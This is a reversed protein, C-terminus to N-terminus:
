VPPDAATFVAMRRYHVDQRSRVPSRSARHVLRELVGGLYQRDADEERQYDDPQPDV